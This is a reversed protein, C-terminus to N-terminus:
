DSPQEVVPSGPRPLAHVWCFFYRNQTSRFHTWDILSSPLRYHPKAPRKPEHLDVKYLCQCRGIKNIM